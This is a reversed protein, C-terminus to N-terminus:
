IMCYLLEVFENLVLSVPVGLAVAAAVLVFEGLVLSVPVGVVVPAAVLVVELAAAVVVFDPLKLTACTLILTNIPTGIATKM